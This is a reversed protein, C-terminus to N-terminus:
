LACSAADKLVSMSEVDDPNIDSISGNFIVGDVVYLPANTGNVTNIGRILISPSGGPGAATTSSVQVGPALGELASTVSNVPRSEIEKAGVVAVSGTLSEKTATGYAVVVVDDLNQSTSTLPVIMNDKLTAVGTTYGVYSVRIQKVDAPVNLVFKGDIDTAVGQGGGIPTVTAGILPEDNAADVVTGHYTRNQAMVSLTSALVAMLIFFLKRM